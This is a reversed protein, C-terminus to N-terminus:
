MQKKLVRGKLGELTKIYNNPILIKLFPYLYKKNKSLTLCKLWHRASKLRNSYNSSYYTTALLVTFRTQVLNWEFETFMDKHREALQQFKGVAIEANAVSKNSIREEQHDNQIFLPEKGAYIQKGKELFLCIFFMDQFKPIEDFGGIELFVSRKICFMPTYVNGYMLYNKLDGIVPLGDTSPFAKGNRKKLFASAHADYEKNQHLFSIQESVKNPLFEDDDDLFFLYEGEAYAGGTNRAVCAGKNLNHVVYKVLGKDVYDQILTANKIQYENGEGSDDVVIVEKSGSYDQNLCSEIARILFDSRKYTTIIISAKM